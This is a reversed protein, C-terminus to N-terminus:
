RHRLRRTSRCRLALDAGVHAHEREIGTPQMRFGIAEDFLHAIVVVDLDFHQQGVRMVDLIEHAAFTKEAEVPVAM